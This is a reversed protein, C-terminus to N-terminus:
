KFNFKLKAMKRVRYKHEFNILAYYILMFFLTREPAGAVKLSYFNEIAFNKM